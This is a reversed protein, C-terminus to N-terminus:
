LHLHLQMLLCFYQLLLDLLFPFLKTLNLQKKVEFFGFVVADFLYFITRLQLKPLNPDLVAVEDTSFFDEM